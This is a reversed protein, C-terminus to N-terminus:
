KGSGECTIRSVGKKFLAMADKFARRGDDYGRLYERSGGLCPAFNAGALWGRRYEDVEEM